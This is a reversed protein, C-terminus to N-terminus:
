PITLIESSTPKRLFRDHPDIPASVLAWSPGARLARTVDDLSARLYDIEFILDEHETLAAKMQEEHGDVLM